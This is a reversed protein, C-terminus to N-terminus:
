SDIGNTGHNNKRWGSKENLGGGMAFEPEPLVAMMSDM